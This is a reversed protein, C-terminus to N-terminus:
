EHRWHALVREGRETLAVCELQRGIITAHEITAHESKVRQPVLSLRIDFAPLFGFGKDPWEILVISDSHFYDRIGMYELEEPDGLRYLDFHYVPVFLTEYSEVLTYTPSKVAGSHGLAMLIGRTLTTKGAGLQGELSLVMTHPLSNEQDSLVKNQVKDRLLQGLRLGADVTAKEDLLDLKVSQAVVM